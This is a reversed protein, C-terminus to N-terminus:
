QSNPWKSHWVQPKVLAYISWFINIVKWNAFILRYKCPWKLSLHQLLYKPILICLEEVIWGNRVKVYHPDSASSLNITVLKSSIINRTTNTFCLNQQRGPFNLRDTLEKTILSLDFSPEPLANAKFIKDKMTLDVETVEVYTKNIKELWNSIQNNNVELNSNLHTHTKYNLLSYHRKHCTRCNHESKWNSFQDSKSLCNWYLRYENVIKKRAPVTKNVFITCQMLQHPQEWIWFNLAIASYLNSRQIHLQKAEKNAVQKGYNTIIFKKPTAILSFEDGDTIIDSIPNFYIRLAKSM